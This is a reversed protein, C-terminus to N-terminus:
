KMASKNQKQTKLFFIMIKTPPVKKVEYLHFSFFPFRFHFCFSYTLLTTLAFIMICIVHIEMTAVISFLMCFAFCCEIIYLLMYFLRFGSDFLLKYNALYGVFITFPFYIKRRIINRMILAFSSDHYDICIHQM